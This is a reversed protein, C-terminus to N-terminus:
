ANNEGKLLKAEIELAYCLCLIANEKYITEVIKKDQYIDLKYLKKTKHVQYSFNKTDCM